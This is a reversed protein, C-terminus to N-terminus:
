FPCEGFDGVVIVFEPDERARDDIGIRSRYRYGACKWVQRSVAQICLLTTFLYPNLNVGSIARRRPPTKFLLLSSTWIAGSHARSEQFVPGPCRLEPGEEQEKNVWTRPLSIRRLEDMFLEYPPHTAGRKPPMM